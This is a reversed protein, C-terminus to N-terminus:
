KASIFQATVDQVQAPSNIPMKLSPAGEAFNVKNLTVAHLTLNQYTRYYFVKNKLDKFVVWQTYDAAPNGTQAERVTGSPIDVNNIIHEALNLAGAADQAPFATQALLATKVFRSPPSFDGPLGVMGAGQGTATFTMGKVVVPNPNSPTLNLYNRLNTTHWDYTPSNTMVGISDYMHLKGNVYEVILGKGSADYIAAHAPLIVDGMASTIKQGFVIIQPLAQKVEDVSKFNGLVWQGFQVYPVAKNEQGAPVAQYGAEGPFLLYEFSLGQDNMGDLATDIGLGDLYVYGYKSKWSFGPKGDPATTTFLKNIPSSRLNSQMDTAFEMSRAIVVTGDKATTRFDTCAMAANSLGIGLIASLIMASSQNILSKKM